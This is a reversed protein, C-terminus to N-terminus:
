YARTPMEQKLQEQQPEGYSYSPPVYYQDADYHQYYPSSASPIAYPNSYFRSGAHPPYQQQGYPVQQPYPQPARHQPYPQPPYPQQVGQRYYYDPASNQRGYGQQGQGGTDHKEPDYAYPDTGCSSAAFIFGFLVLYTAVSRQIKM